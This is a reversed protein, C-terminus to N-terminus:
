ADAMEDEFGTEGIFSFDLESFEEFNDDGLFPREAGVWTFYISVLRPHRPNMLCWMVKEPTELTGVDDLAFMFHLFEDTIFLDRSSSYRDARRSM